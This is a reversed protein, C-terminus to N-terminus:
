ANVIGRVDRAAAIFEKILFPDKNGSENEVGSSVDIGYPELTKIASKVNIPNLGGALIFPMCFPNIFHNWDFSKGSGGTFRDFLLIDRDANLYEVSEQEDEGITVHGNDDVHIVYIRRIYSPLQHHQRRSISGHLQVTDISLKECIELMENANSDVFVPVPVGGKNRVEKAIATANELTVHRKSGKYMMLGIYKAGLEVARGALEPDKIGCIKIIFNKDNM